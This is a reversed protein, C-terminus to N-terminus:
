SRESARRITVLSTGNSVQKNVSNMLAGATNGARFQDAEVCAPTFAVDANDHSPVLHDGIVGKFGKPVGNEAVVMVAAYFLVPLKDGCGFGM